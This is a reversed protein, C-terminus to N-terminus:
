KKEDLQRLIKEELKAAAVELEQDIVPPPEATFFKEILASQRQYQKCASCLFVHMSLQMREVFSIEERHRKEILATAAQCSLMLKNM